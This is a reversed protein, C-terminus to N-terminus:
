TSLKHLKRPRFAQKIKPISDALADDQINMVRKILNMRVTTPKFSLKM